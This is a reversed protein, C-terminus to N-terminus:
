SSSADGLFAAVVQHFAEPAEIQPAHGVGPFVHTTAHPLARRAAELHHLPLVQDRDGWVILTPRPTRSVAALLQTRWEERVGRGTALGRALEYLVDGAGPQRSLALAHDIRAETVFSRDAFMASELLRASMRTTKRTGVWGLGPVALMRLLSTVESGFGASDVLVLSSVRDPQLALAQLGVAGGLSNGVVHLPRMEGIADLTEIVGQALSEMTVREPRRASYGFGPLDVAIVRHSRALRASQEAWDELSRTVGHILLVPPADPDGDIRVRAVRGQVPIITPSGPTVDISKLATM